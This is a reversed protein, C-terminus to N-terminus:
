MTHMKKKSLREYLSDYTKSRGFTIVLDSILTSKRTNALKM